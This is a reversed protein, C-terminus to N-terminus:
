DLVAVAEIEILLGPAALSSIGILTHAAPTANGYFPVLVSLIEPFKEPSYDVVYTRVQVLSDPTANVSDLVDKLNKLAQETQAALDGPGVINRDKDMAVQGSIHLTKRGESLIAQSLGAGQVNFLTDPNIPEKKM